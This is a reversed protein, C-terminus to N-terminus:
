RKSFDFLPASRRGLPERAFRECCARCLRFRHQRYTDNEPLLGDAEFEDFRELVEEIDALYDRDNDIAADAESPAPYVEMRIVYTVDHTPDLEGKCMDCSYPIMECYDKRSERTGSEFASQTDNMRTLISRVSCACGQLNKFIAVRSQGGRSWHRFMRCPALGITKQRYSLQMARSTKVADRWHFGSSGAKEMAFDFMRLARIL